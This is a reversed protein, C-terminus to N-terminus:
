KTTITQLYVFGDESSTVFTFGDSTYCALGTAIVKEDMIIYHARSEGSYTVTEIVREPGQARRDMFTIALGDRSAKISQATMGPRGPDVSFKRLLEGGPSIAVVQAPSTARLLYVNGDSGSTAEGMEVARTTSDSTAGTDRTSEDKGKKEVPESLRKVLKGSTDFVATFSATEPWPTVGSVLYEGSKFVAFRIPNFHPGELELRSKVAGDSSFSIVYAQSTKALYAVEYFDGGPTAAFDRGAFDEPEDNSNRYLTGLAGDPAIKQFPSQLLTHNKARVQDYPRLYVNGDEDCKSKGLLASHLPTKVTATLKLPISQDGGGNQHGQDQSFGPVLLLILFILLVIVYKTKTM